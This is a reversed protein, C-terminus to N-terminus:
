IHIPPSAFCFYMNIPYILPTFLIFILHIHLSSFCFYEHIPYLHPPTFLIFISPTDSVFTGYVTILPPFNVYPIPTYISPTIHSVLNSPTFTIFQNRISPSYFALTLLTPLLLLWYCSVIWLIVSLNSYDNSDFTNLNCLVLLDLTLRSKGTM